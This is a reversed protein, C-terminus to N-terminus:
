SLINMFLKYNPVTPENPIIKDVYLRDHPLKKGNANVFIHKRIFQVITLIVIIM